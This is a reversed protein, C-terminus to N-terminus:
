GRPSGRISVIVNLNKISCPARDFSWHKHMCSTQQCWRGATFFHNQARYRVDMVDTQSKVSTREVGHGFPTIKVEVDHSPGIGDRHGIVRVSM